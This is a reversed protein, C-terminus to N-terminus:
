SCVQSNQCLETDEKQSHPDLLRLFVPEYLCVAGRAKFSPLRQDNNHCELNGYRRYPTNFFLELRIVLHGRNTCYIYHIVM